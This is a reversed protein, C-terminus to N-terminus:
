EQFLFLNPASMESHLILKPILLSARGDSDETVTEEMFQRMIRHPLM